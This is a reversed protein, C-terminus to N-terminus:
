LACSWGKELLNIEKNKSGRGHYFLVINIILNRRSALCESNM